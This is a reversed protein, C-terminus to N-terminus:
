NNALLKLVEEHLAPDGSALIRGGSTASGGDWSTIRGGAHEIIPILPLIDYANLGTEAVLDIHGAALRCYAYCDAGYRTMQVRDKLRHFADDEDGPVFLDPSTTSLIAQEFAACSRTRITSEGEPGRYHAGADSNWYRERTFPQNMLGLVPRSAKTLGILTGWVPFGVIFARTGDIPDLFWCYDHDERSRGFEEGVIGHDPYTAELKDRIIQEAARDAATVPDFIGSGAKDEIDGHQRFYQMIVDGSADALTHAFELLSELSPSNGDTM